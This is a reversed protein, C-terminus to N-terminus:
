MRGKVRAQGRGEWQQRGFLGGKVSIDKKNIKNTKLYLNRMHSFVNLTQRGSDPKNQKVLRDGAGDM